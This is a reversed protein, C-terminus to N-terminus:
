ANLDLWRQMVTATPLATRPPTPQPRPQPARRDRVQALRVRMQVVAATHASFRQAMNCAEKVMEM